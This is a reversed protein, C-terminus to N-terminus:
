IRIAAQELAFKIVFKIISFNHCCQYVRFNEILFFRGLSWLKCFLRFIGNKRMWFNKKEYEFIAYVSIEVVRWICCFGVEVYGYDDNDLVFVAIAQEIHELFRSNEKDEVFFRQRNQAWRDRNDTTLAALKREV